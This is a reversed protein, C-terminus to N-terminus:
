EFIGKAMEKAPNPRLESIQSELQDIRKELERIADEQMLSAIPKPTPRQGHIVFPLWEDEFFDKTEKLGEGTISRLYKICNIKKTQVYEPDILNRIESLPTYNM